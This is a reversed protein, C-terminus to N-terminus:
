FDLVLTRNFYFKKPDFNCYTSKTKFILDRKVEM